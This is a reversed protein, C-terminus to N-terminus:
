LHKEMRVAPISVADSGGADIEELREFGLSEYFDVANLSSHVTLRDVGAERALDELYEVIAHGVTSSCRRFASFLSTLRDNTIRNTAVDSM